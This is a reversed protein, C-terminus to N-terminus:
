SCLHEVPWSRRVRVVVALLKPVVWTKYMSCTQGSPALVTVLTFSKLLKAFRSTAGIKLVILQDISIVQLSTTCAAYGFLGLFRGGFSARKGRVPSIRFKQYKQM